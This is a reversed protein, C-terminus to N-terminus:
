LTEFHSQFTSVVADWTYNEEVLERGRSGMEKRKVASEAMNGLRGAIEVPDLSTVFGAGAEAVESFHCHKSIVVPVSAAM